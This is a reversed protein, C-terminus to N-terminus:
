RDPVLHLNAYPGASAVAVQQRNNWYIWIPKEKRTKGKQYRNVQTTGSGTWHATFHYYYYNHNNYVMIYKIIYSICRYKQEAIQLYSVSPVTSLGSSIRLKRLIHSQLYYYLMRYIINNFQKPKHGNKPQMSVM